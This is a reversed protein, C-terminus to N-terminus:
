VRKKIKHLLGKRCVSDFAKEMDVFCTYLKKNQRIYSKVITKLIFIHDTTRYGKRFGAQEKAIINNKDCFLALRQHLIACFLKGLSSNLTIGRYNNPDDKNGGKHLNKILGFNWQTPFNRSNLILNFLSTLIQIVSPSAKIM